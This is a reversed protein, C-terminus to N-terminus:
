QRTSSPRQPRPLWSARLLHASSFTLAPPPSREACRMGIASAQQQQQQPPADPQKSGDLNVICAQSPAIFDSVDSIKVTGSFGAM